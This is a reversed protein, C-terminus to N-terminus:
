AFRRQAIFPRLLWAPRYSQKVRRLNEFGSDDGCNVFRYGSLKQCFERFLFQSLGKINLDTTEFMIYFVEKSLALGLSYGVIKNEVKVLWGCLNLEKFNKLAQEQSSLCDDLCFHYADEQHRAKRMKSWQRYLSLCEKAMSSELSQCSYQYHRMFFNCASRKSKFTNGSLKILDKVAYLYESDKVVIDLGLKKYFGVENEPINEIRSFSKNRNHKDILAFIKDITRPLPRGLPPVILFCGLNNKAFVCLCNDVISWFIDFLGRWVFISAFSYMSLPLKQRSLFSDFIPKDKLQITQM